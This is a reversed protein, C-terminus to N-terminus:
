DSRLQFRSVLETQQESLANLSESNTAAQEAGAAISEAMDSINVINEAVEKAVASQQESATAISRSMDNVHALSEVMAKLSANTEQTQIVSKDAHKLNDEVLTVAQSAKQQLSDIMDRIENASQQSRNALTRVEDAVVAFGRGQEGARAAEIAANLALLNTQESISQIVTLIDGIQQSEKSLEQIVDSATDLSTKLQNIFDLNRNMNAMNTQAQETVIAVESSADAAHTAVEQVAAEMETVATAVSDTQSRQEIVNKNTEQSMAHSDIAVSNITKASGQIQGILESLQDNLDNINSAVLGMESQYKTTIRQRLDGSSLRKLALMIDSLPRKIALVVTTTIVVAIVISSVALLANLWLANQADSRAEAVAQRSLNRISSVSNALSNATTDMLEAIDALQAESQQNLSVFKLHQQFLGDQGEIARSLLDRYFVIDEALSPMDRQVNAVKENIRSLYGQLETLYTQIGEEDTVALSKQLYIQAGSGQKAIFDIDWGTQQLGDADADGKFDVMDQAFFLFEGEFGTLENFANERATIRQDQISLHSDAQALLTKGTSIAENVSAAISPFRVLEGVLEDSLEIFNAKAQEYDNRLGDRKEIAATNAHQMMARNANQLHLLVTNSKDLLGTLTSGTLELQAAMKAQSLYASGSLVLMLASVISFGIIVRQILSLRM